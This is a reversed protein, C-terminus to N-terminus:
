VCVYVCVSVCVCVFRLAGVLFVCGSSFRLRVCECGSVCEWLWVCVCGSLSVGSVSVVQCVCM